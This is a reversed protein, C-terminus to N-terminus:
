KCKHSQQLSRLYSVLINPEVTVIAGNWPYIRKVRFSVIQDNEVKYFVLLSPVECKKSIKKIFTTAKYAQGKDYALEM